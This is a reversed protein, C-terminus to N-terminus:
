MIPVEFCRLEAYFIRLGVTLRGLKSCRSSLVGLLLASPISQDQLEQGGDENEVYDKCLSSAGTKPHVTTDQLQVHLDQVSDQTTELDSQLTLFLFNSICPCIDLCLMIQSTMGYSQTAM